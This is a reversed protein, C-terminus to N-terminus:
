RMPLVPYDQWGVDPQTFVVEVRGPELDVEFDDGYIPQLAAEVNRHFSRDLGPSANLEIRARPPTPVAGLFDVFSVLAKVAVAPTARAIVLTFPLHTEESFRMHAQLPLLASLEEVREIAEELWPDSIAGWKPLAGKHKTGIVTPADENEDGSEIESVLHSASYGTNSEIIDPMADDDGRGNHPPPTGFIGSSASSGTVAAVAVPPVSEPQQIPLEVDDESMPPQEVAQASQGPSAGFPNASPGGFPNGPAAGFPNSGSGSSGFAGGGAPAAPKRQSFPNNSPPAAVSPAAGSGAFPGADDSGEKDAPTGSSDSRNFTPTLRGAAGAPTTKLAGSRARALVGGGGGGSFAGGGPGSTPAVGAPTPAPARGFLGSGGGGEASPAASSPARGFPNNGGGESGGGFRGPKMRGLAPPQSGSDGLRGLASPTAMGQRDRLSVPVPTEIRPRAGAPTSRMREMVAKQTTLRTVENVLKQHQKQEWPLMQADRGMALAALTTMLWGVGMCAALVGLLAPLGPVGAPVPVVADFRAITRALDSNFFPVVLVALAAGIMVISSFLFLARFILVPHAPSALKLRRLLRGRDVGDEFAQLKARAGSLQKEVDKVTEVSEIM